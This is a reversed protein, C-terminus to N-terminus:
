QVVSTVAIFGGIACGVPALLAILALWWGRHGRALFIIALVCAILWVAGGIFLLAFALDTAGEVDGPSDASTFLLLVDLIAELVIAVVGVIMLVISVVLNAVRRGTAPRPVETTM